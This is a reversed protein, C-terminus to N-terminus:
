ADPGDVWWYHSCAGCEYKEDEYGGCDSDWIRVTVKKEGCKPCSRDSPQPANFKGEHEALQRTHTM